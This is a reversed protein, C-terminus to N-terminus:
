VQCAIMKCHDWRDQDIIAQAIHISKLGDDPTGDMDYEVAKGKLVYFLQALPYVKFTEPDENADM